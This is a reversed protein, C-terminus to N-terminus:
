LGCISTQFHSNCEDNKDGLTTINSYDFVFPRGQLAKNNCSATNSSCSQCNKLLQPNGTYTYEGQACRYALSPSYLHTNYADNLRAYGPTNLGQVYGYAEKKPHQYVWLIVIVLAALIVAILINSCCSM